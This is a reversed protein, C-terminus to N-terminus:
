LSWLRTWRTRLETTDARWRGGEQVRLARLRSRLVAGEGGEGLRKQEKRLSAKM